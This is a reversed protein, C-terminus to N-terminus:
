QPVGCHSLCTTVEHWKGAVQPKYGGHEGGGQEGRWEGVEERMDGVCSKIEKNCYINHHCAGHHLYNTVCCKWNQPHPRQAVGIFIM